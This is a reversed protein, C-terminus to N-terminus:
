FWNPIEKTKLTLWCLSQHKDRLSFTKPKKLDHSTNTRTLLQYWQRCTTALESIAVNLHLSSWTGLLYILVQTFNPSTISVMVLGFFSSSKSMWWETSKSMGRTTQAGAAKHLHANLHPPPFVPQKWQPSHGELNWFFEGTTMAAAATCTLKVFMGVGQHHASIGGELRLRSAKTNM